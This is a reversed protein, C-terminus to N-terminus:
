SSSFGLEGSLVCPEVLESGVPSVPESIDPSVGSVLRAEVVGVIVGDVVRASIAVVGELVSTSIASVEVGSVLTDVVAVRSEWVEGTVSVTADSADVVCRSIVVGTEGVAVDGAWGGGVSEGVGDELWSIFEGGEEIAVGAGVSSADLEIPSSESTVGRVSSLISKRQDM